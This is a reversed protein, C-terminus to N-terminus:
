SLRVGQKQLSEQLKQTNVDASKVGDKISLASAVGVGQGTVTCAMMNRM